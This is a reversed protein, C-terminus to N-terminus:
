APRAGGVWPLDRGAEQRLRDALRRTHHRIYRLNVLQHEPKSMRCWSFGSDPAALDLRDVAPGALDRRLLCYIRLEQASCPSPAPAADLGAGFHHHRPRHHEWPLFDAESPQLYLHTHYLTHYAVQWFPNVYGDGTWLAAPCADIAALLMALAAEYQSGLV